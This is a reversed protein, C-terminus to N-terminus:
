STRRMGRTPQHPTPPRGFKLNVLLRSAQRRPPAPRPPEAAGTLTTALMYGSQGCPLDRKELQGRQTVTRLLAHLTGGSVGSVAAIVCASV